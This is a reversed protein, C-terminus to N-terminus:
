RVRTMAFFQQIHNRIATECEVARRPERDWIGMYLVVPAYFLLALTKPDGPRIVGLEMLKAFLREDYGLMTEAYRKTYLAGLEGSQFQSLTLMRRVQRSYPDEMSFRVFTLVSECLGEATISGYVAVDTQNVEGQGDKPFHVSLATFFDQFRAESARIIEDFLQQKSAFHKYLAAKTIGLPKAIDQMSAGAFGKESFQKLAEELILERTNM